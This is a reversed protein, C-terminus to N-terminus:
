GGLQTLSQASTDREFVAVCNSGIRPWEVIWGTLRSDTPEARM